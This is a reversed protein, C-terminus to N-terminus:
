PKHRRAPRSSLAHRLALAAALVLALLLPLPYLPTVQQETRTAPPAPLSDLLQHLAPEAAMRYAPIYRGGTLQALEQLLQEDLAHNDPTSDNTAPQGIGLSHIRIGQRAAFRAATRPPMVGSNNAGDTVLLIDHRAHPSDALKRLALGLADGIATDPGAMGPESHQLWYLLTQYDRTAPSQLYAQSGFLILGFRDNARAHLLHELLQRVQQYRNHPQNSDHINMSSSLDVALMIEAQPPSSVPILVTWQPRCAAVVVLLWILALPLLRQQVPHRTYQQEHLQQLRDFFPALLVPGTRRAPPLRHRLLWPLPLSALLWPWALSFM